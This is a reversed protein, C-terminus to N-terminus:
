HNVCICTLGYEQNKQTHRLIIIMQATGPRSALHYIWFYIKVCSKRVCCLVVNQDLSKCLYMTDVDVHCLVFWM